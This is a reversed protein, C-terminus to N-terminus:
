HLKTDSYTRGTTEFPLTTELSDWKEGIIVAIGM